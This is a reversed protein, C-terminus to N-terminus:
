RRPADMENWDLAHAECMRRLRKDAHFLTGWNIDREGLLFSGSGLSIEQWNVVVRQASVVNFDIYFIFHWYGDSANPIRYRWLREAHTMVM